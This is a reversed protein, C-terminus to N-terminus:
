LSILSIKKKLFKFMLHSRDDDKVRVAVPPWSLWGTLEVRNNVKGIRRVRLIIM